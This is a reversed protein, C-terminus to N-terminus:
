HEEYYKKLKKYLTKSAKLAEKKSKFYNGAKFHTYDYLTHTDLVKVVDIIFDKGDYCETVIWYWNSKNKRKKM